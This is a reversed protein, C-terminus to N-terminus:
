IEFLRDDLKITSNKNELWGEMWAFRGGDIDLLVASSNYLEIVIGIKGIYQHMQYIFGIDDKVERIKVRDGVKLDM